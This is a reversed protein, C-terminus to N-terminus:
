LYCLNLFYRTEMQLSRNLCLFAVFIEVCRLIMPVDDISTIIGLVFYLSVIDLHFATVILTVDRDDSTM